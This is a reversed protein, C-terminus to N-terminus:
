VKGPADGPQAAARMEDLASRGPEPDGCVSINPDRAAAEHWRQRRADRERMVDHPAEVRQVHERARPRALAVKNSRCFAWVINTPRDLERAIESALAGSAALAVIREREDM